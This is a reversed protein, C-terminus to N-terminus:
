RFLPLTLIPAPTPTLPLPLTEFEELSVSNTGDADMRRFAEEFAEVQAKVNVGTVSFKDAPVNLLPLMLDRLEDDLRFARIVQNPTANPCQPM